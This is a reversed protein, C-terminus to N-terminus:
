NMPMLGKENQIFMMESHDRDFINENNWGSARYGSFLFLIGIGRREWDRTVEIRSETEIFM